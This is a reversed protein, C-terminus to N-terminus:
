GSVLGATEVRVGPMVESYALVPLQPYSQEVLRRIHRRVRSSCLLIPRRGLGLLRDIQDNLGSLFAHARSPDLALMEGEATQTLSDAVAQEFEPDLGIVRLTADTELYPATIARGLAHRAAETLASPDRTLAARDSISELITGLDRVSVHERLLGQLVRQVDGVGLKDPM